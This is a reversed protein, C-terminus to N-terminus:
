KQHKAAHIFVDNRYIFRLVILKVLVNTNGKLM